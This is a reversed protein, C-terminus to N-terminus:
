SAALPEFMEVNEAKQFFEDHLRQVAKNMEEESVVLSLNIESAGESIMIVNIDAIVSFIRRAIGPTNRMGDGVICIIAKRELVSVEAFGKLENIIEDLSVTSDVTLSVSVESTSVLDVSTRYKRFVAFISELFGYAMLMRTSHINIVTIGKKCAISKIVGNAKPAEAVITTGTSNPRKSNLVRVPINKEVAPLITSPHLVRAGFYALESAEDFSMLRIKKAEKVINPDATLIGDVDTWIQIEEAHLASGLIAATFDSGGRGITTNIGDKTAGVFGQTVVMYGEHVKPLLFERAKSEIINMLPVARTFQDDTIMVERADILYSNIKQEPMYQHIIFSSIREGYSAFTDMSRPTLEGLIAVGNVLHTLELTYSQIAQEVRKVAEWSLLNNVIDIHRVALNSVEANAEKQKGQAALDAIHLLQDTVGACASVVVIPQQKQERKILEVVARISKADEISTGGFKMIIM